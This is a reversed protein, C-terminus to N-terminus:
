NKTFHSFLPHTWQIIVNELTTAYGQDSFSLVKLHEHLGALSSRLPDCLISYPYDRNKGMFGEPPVLAKSTPYVDRYVLLSVLFALRSLDSHVYHLIRDAGPYTYFTSPTESGELDIIVPRFCTKITYVRGCVRYERASQCKEILINSEKLDYHMFRDFTKRANILICFLELLFACTDTLSKSVSDIFFPIYPMVIFALPKSQIYHRSELALAVNSPVNPFSTVYFHQYKIFGPMDYRKALYLHLLEDVCECHQTIKVCLDQGEIRFVDGRIGRGCLLAPNISFRRFFDPEKICSLFSSGISQEYLHGDVIDKEFDFPEYKDPARLLILDQKTFVKFTQKAIM